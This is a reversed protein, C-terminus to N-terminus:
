GPLNEPRVRPGQNRYLLYAYPNVEEDWWHDYQVGDETRNIGYSDWCVYGEEGELCLGWRGLEYLIELDDKGWQLHPRANMAVVKIQEHTYPAPM